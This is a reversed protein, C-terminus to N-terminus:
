KTDVSYDFTSKKLDDDCIGDPRIENRACIHFHLRTLNLVEIDDAFDSYGSEIALTQLSGKVQDIQEELCFVLRQSPKGQVLSKLRSRGLVAIITEVVEAFANRRTEKLEEPTHIDKTDIKGVAQSFDSLPIKHTNLM